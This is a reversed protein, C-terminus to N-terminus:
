RPRGQAKALLELLLAQLVCCVPGAHGAANGAGKCHMPVHVPPHTKGRCPLQASRHSFAFEGLDEFIPMLELLKIKRVPASVKVSTGEESCDTHVTILDELEM